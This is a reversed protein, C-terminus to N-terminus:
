QLRDEQRGAPQPLEIVRGQFATAAEQWLEAERGTYRPSFHFPALRRAGAAQAIEGAQRATLHGREAALAADEHLFPAECVLLDADRALAIAKEINEPTPRIDTVYALRQGPSRSLIDDILEAAPLRRPEGELTEADLLEDAPRCRRAIQKLERLWAGPRLGRRTLRDKNVSIHETERLAIAMVPIGHDLLDAHLTFAREAHLVGVGAADRTFPRDPLPSRSLSGAGSFEAARIRDGDIEEAIIKVPYHEILNWDYGRLKGEVRDIFGPPGSITLPRERGLIQRLLVDFGIFHDMHTHTVMAREVRMLKRPALRSLDGLDCLLARGEDMVDVWLAPDGGAGNVLYPLFVARM